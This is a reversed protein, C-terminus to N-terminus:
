DSNTGESTQEINRRDNPMFSLSQGDITTISDNMDVLSKYEQILYGDGTRGQM